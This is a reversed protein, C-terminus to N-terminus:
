NTGPTFCVFFGEAICRNFAGNLSTVQNSHGLQHCLRRVLRWYVQPNNSPEQESLFLLLKAAKGTSVEPSRDAKSSPSNHKSRTPSNSQISISPVSFLQSSCINETNLAETEPLSAPRSSTTQAHRPVVHVPKPAPVEYTNAPYGM